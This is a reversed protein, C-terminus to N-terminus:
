DKERNTIIEIKCLSEEKTFWKIDSIEQKQNENEDNIECKKEMNSVIGVYYLYKYKVKNEGRFEETLPIINSIMDYDAITYNTEEQVERIACDKNKEHKNRRGKSVGM